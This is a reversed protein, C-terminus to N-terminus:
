AAPAAQHHPSMAVARGREVTIEIWRPCHPWPGRWAPARHDGGHCRRNQRSRGGPVLWRALPTNWSQICASHWRGPPLGTTAGNRALLSAKLQPSRFHRSGHLRWPHRQGARGATRALFRAPLRTLPHCPMMPRPWGTGPHASRLDDFYQSIAARELSLARDAPAPIQPTRRCPYVRFRPLRLARIRGADAAMRGPRGGDRCRVPAPEHGAWTATIFASMSDVPGPASRTTQGGLHFTNWCWCASARSMPSCCPM